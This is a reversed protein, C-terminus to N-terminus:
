QPILCLFAPKDWPRTGNQGLSPEQKDRLGDRRFHKHKNAKKRARFVVKDPPIPSDRPKGPIIQSATYINVEEGSLLPWFLCMFVQCMFLKETVGTVSGGPRTGPRFHKHEKPEACVVYVNSGQRWGTPLVGGLRATVPFFQKHKHAKEEGSLLGGYVLIKVCVWPVMEGFSNKKLPPKKTGQVM